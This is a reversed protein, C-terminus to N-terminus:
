EWLNTEQKKGREETKVFFVVLLQCSLAKKSRKKRERGKSLQSPRDCECEKKRWL